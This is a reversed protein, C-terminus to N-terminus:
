REMAAKDTSQLGGYKLSSDFHRLIDQKKVALTEQTVSDDFYKPPPCNKLYPQKFDVFSNAPVSPKMFDPISPDVEMFYPNANLDREDPEEEDTVTPRITEVSPLDDLDV